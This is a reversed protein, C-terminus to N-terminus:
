PQLRQTLKRTGYQLRKTGTSSMQGQQQLNATEQLAQQALENEGLELLRTAAQRLKQTAGAVNGAQADQLARTQLKFASVKEVINAVKPNVPSEAGFNLIVDAKATQATLNAAPVDYTVQAQAVRFMGVPKPPLTLEVLVAKGTVKDIDGLSVQVDTPSLPRAGLNSIMPLIQWVQRPAVNPMLRLVLEANRVMTAKLARMEGQFMPIIQAPSDILDSKGRSAQAIADLLQHNWDDGAGLGLASIPINAQGAQQALDQCAGEDGWTNGDTLLIVRNVRSPDFQQSVEALGQQLGFSMQTGGRDDITDVLQKLRAPDAVPQSAALVDIQEDFLVISILDNPTLQDILLKVAERLNYIKAGNMSASRDLVLACNLAAPANMSSVDTPQAEVLVYTLQPTQAKLAERIPICQLNLEGPM